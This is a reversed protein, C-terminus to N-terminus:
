GNDPPEDDAAAGAAKAAAAAAKAKAAKNKKGGRRKKPDPPGPPPPTHLLTSKAGARPVAPIPQRTPAPTPQLAGRDRVEERVRKHVLSLHPELEGLYEPAYLLGDKLSAQTHTRRATGVVEAFENATPWNWAAAVAYRRLQLRVRSMLEGRQQGMVGQLASLKKKLQLLSPAAAAIAPPISAIARALQQDMVGFRQSVDVGMDVLQTCGHSYSGAGADVGRITQMDVLSKRISAVQAQRLLGDVDTPAPNAPLAVPAAPAPTATAKTAALAAVVAAAIVAPDAAM